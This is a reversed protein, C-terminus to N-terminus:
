QKQLEKYLIAVDRLVQQAKGIDFEEVPVELGVVGISKAMYLISSLLSQTNNEM